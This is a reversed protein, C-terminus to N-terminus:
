ERTNNIYYQKNRKHNVNNISVFDQSGPILAVNKANGTFGGEIGPGRVFFGFVDNYKSGVFECYEESAFVYRFTVFSDLPIFDFELGVRDRIPGTALKSLDPDSKKDDFDGSREGTSNPSAAHTIPGTSLIIGRDLGISYSGNEFYGIGEPNGLGVIETINYCTGAVFVNRVLEEPSLGLETRITKDDPPDGAPLTPTSNTYGRFTLVLGSLVLICYLM